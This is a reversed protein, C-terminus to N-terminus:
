DTELEATGLWAEVAEAYTLDPTGGLSSVLHSVEHYVSDELGLEPDSTEELFNRLAANAEIMTYVLKNIKKYERSGRPTALRLQADLARLDVLQQKLLQGLQDHEELTLRVQQKRNM